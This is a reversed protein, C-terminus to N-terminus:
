PVSSSGRHAARRLLKVLGKLAPERGNIKYEAILRQLEALGGVRDSLAGPGQAERFAAAQLM